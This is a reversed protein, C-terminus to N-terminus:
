SNLKGLVMITSSNSHFFVHVNRSVCRQSKKTFRPQSGKKKEQRHFDLNEQIPDVM